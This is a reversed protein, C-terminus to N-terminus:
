PWAAGAAASTWCACAPGDLLLKAAIHRKKAVQAEDLTEDGTPFYACSYQWDRDLFLAYLREDLDYHHAVNRRSRQARTTSRARRLLRAPGDQMPARSPPRGAALNHLLVDLVDDHTCDLPVLTGDMYAEGFALAPNSLLRRRQAVHPHRRGADPRGGAYRSPRATPIASRLAAGPSSAGAPDRDFIGVAYGGWPVQGDGIRGHM